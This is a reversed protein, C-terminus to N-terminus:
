AQAAVVTPVGMSRALIATHSNPGGEETVFALARDPRLTATDAPALDRAVLVFPHCPDPVGPIPVGLLRAAVRDWIDDLDAVRAAM